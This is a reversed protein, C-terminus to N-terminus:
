SRGAAPLVPVPGASATVGGNGLQGFTNDGWCYVSEDAVQACSHAGGAGVAIFRRQGRVRVPVTSCREADPCSEGPPVIAGLQGSDDSGWCWAAGDAGLACTHSWGASIAVFRVSTKVRVETTADASSGAGLQGSRNNGWCYADGTALLGCTHRRGATIRSFRHAGAAVLPVERGLAAGHGLQRDDNNGWCWVEGDEDLACAHISGAAIARFRRDSSIRVPALSCPLAFEGCVEAPSSGLQGNSDSGWCWAAGGADLGCSHFDGAAVATIEGPMEVRVPERSCPQGVLGNQAVCFETGPLERGLQSKDVGWCFAAGDVTVGCVHGALVTSGPSASIM